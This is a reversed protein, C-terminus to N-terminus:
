FFTTAAVTAEVAAGDDEDAVEVPIAVEGVPDPLVSATMVEEEEELPDGAPVVEAEPVCDEVAPTGAEVVLGLGELALEPAAAGKDGPSM